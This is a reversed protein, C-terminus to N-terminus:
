ECLLRKVRRDDDIRLEEHSNIAGIEHSLVDYENGGDVIGLSYLSGLSTITTDREARKVVSMGALSGLLGLQGGHAETSAALYLAVSGISTGPSRPLWALGKDGRWFLLILVAIVMLILTAMSLYNCVTYATKTMAPSFAINALFIPLFEALVALMAVFAVLYHSRSISPIIASVPSAHFPVLISDQPTASGRLLSSYPATRRLDADIYSWVIKVVVGLSTMMFRVGFGESDMFKEFGSSLGTIPDPGTWHYYSILALLGGFLLFSVFYFGKQAVVKWFRSKAKKRHVNSLATALAPENNLRDFQDSTQQVESYVGMKGTVNGSSALDIESDPDVSVIGYCRTTDDASFDSLAFRKRELAAKLDKESAMSDINRLDRLLPSKYLLVALGVISLPEAYVGSTRRYNFIILLSLLVAIFALIGQVIRVLVPYTGWAAYCGGELNAGCNGTVSVFFAESSLPALIVVALSILSSWFPIVHGRYISRFPMTITLSTNYDLFLSDRGLAGGRKNHLQYYPEIERITGDLIRWPMTYIVALILPLFSVYIYQQLTIQPARVATENSVLYTGTSNVITSTPRAATAVGNLPRSATFSEPPPTQTYIKGDIETIYPTPTYTKGDVVTLVPTVAFTQGGVSTLIPLPSGNTDTAIGGSPLTSAQGNAVVVVTPPTPNPPTQGNGPTLNGGTATPEPTTVPPTGVNLFGDPVVGTISNSQPTGPSSEQGVSPSAGPPSTVSLFGGQPRGTSSVTSPPVNPPNSFPTAQPSELERTSNNANQREVLARWHKPKSVAENVSDGLEGLGSHAPIYRSGLEALAILVLTFLLLFVLIPTRTATPKYFQRSANHHINGSAM